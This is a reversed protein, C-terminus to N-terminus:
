TNIHTSVDTTIIGRLNKEVRHVFVKHPQYNLLMLFSGVIPTRRFSDEHPFEGFGCEDRHCGILVFFYRLQFYRIIRKCLCETITGSLLLHLMQNHPDSTVDLAYSELSAVSSIIIVQGCLVYGIRGKRRSKSKIIVCAHGLEISNDDSGRKHVQTNKDDRIDEEQITTIPVCELHKVTRMGLESVHFLSWTLM